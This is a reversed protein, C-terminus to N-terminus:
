KGEGKYTKKLAQFKAMTEPMPICPWAPNQGKGSEVYQVTRRSIGLTEAFRVQSFLYRTRFSIWEKAIKRQRQERKLKSVEDVSRRETKAIKEIAM